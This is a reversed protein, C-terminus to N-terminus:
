RIRRSEIEMNRKTKWILIIRANGRQHKRGEMNYAIKKRCTKCKNM